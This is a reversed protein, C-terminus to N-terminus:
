KEVSFGKEVSCGKKASHGELYAGAAEACARTNYFDGIQNLKTVACCLLDVDCPSLWLGFLLNPLFLVFHYISSLVAM